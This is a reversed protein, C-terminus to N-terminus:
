AAGEVEDGELGGAESAKAACPNAADRLRRILDSFTQLEEPTFVSDLVSVVHGVHVPVATMIRAQGAETLVAYTSRRDTPCAERAVLGAAELRDVARTLGSASLTTQAALDSMRLRHGPSRALRIMVEFWQVSLGSQEELEREMAASLGAHAEMFLGITTVHPHELPDVM